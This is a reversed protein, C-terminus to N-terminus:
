PSPPEAAVPLREVTVAAGRLIGLEIEDVPGAVVRAVQQGAQALAAVREATFGPALREADRRAYALVEAAVGPDAAVIDASSLARVSRLTLLDAPGRGAIFRVLGLSRPGQALAARLLAEARHLDGANAAQAAPGSVAQRLFARREHLQPLAARIDDQLRKLLGAFRGAGEPVHIEMQTRMMAAMVPSAGGTGIAAVVQGRDIVAPTNFDSLAPRDIVNVPAGASRAALLAAQAFLDDEGDIFILTADAYSQPAAAADGTLRVVSAPSGEFLRAKAQAGAGDGAIVVTAGALPFFAPFADV